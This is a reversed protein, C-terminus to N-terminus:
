GWLMAVTRHSRRVSHTVVSSRVAHTGIRFSGVGCRAAFEVRDVIDEDHVAAPMTVLAPNLGDRVMRASAHREDSYM